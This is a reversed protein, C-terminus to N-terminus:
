YIYISSSPIKYCTPTVAMIPPSGPLNTFSELLANMEHNRPDGASYGDFGALLIKSAQGSSAIALTYAVVMSTPLVCYTEAFEFTNPQVTLGFDLLKKTILKQAIDDPLMSAPTILPQPLEIHANCDALLRVPHCAARLHILDPALDSQTNLAIVVPQHSRIYTELAMQHNAVGPGSGLILVEHGALESAPAWSGIPAGLYFHRAAELTNLNFKKGGSTKLHEIVALVDSDNFRTDRLMSQIYTPHIGHKGALYYYTNAGWGYEQQMPGFYRRILAMLPTINCPHDPRLVAMEIALYETQVNGAGRGMGTVTGDVWTVGDSIAQLSNALARGMNNHTHIGLEGPWGVRLANIIHTTQAPSMSGMSDAFYLVDLPYQNALRALKEIETLSLDAVQMLNIGVRYGQDKLWRCGELTIEFEHFHCPIRVLSVPSQNAAVFLKSLGAVVGESYDIIESANIMVGLKLSEPITLSQIFSDTTYACGGRFERKPFGRFGMEVYDVSIAAMAQLYEEILIRDFDWANYYGGDRLTCDLFTLSM